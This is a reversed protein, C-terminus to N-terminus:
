FIEAVQKIAKNGSFRLPILDDRGVAQCFVSWFKPELAGLSMHRGDKTEYIHYFPQSGSLFHGDERDNMRNALMRWFAFVSLAFAGDYLSVDLHCGKGTRGRQIIAALVGSLGFLSGGGCLTAM